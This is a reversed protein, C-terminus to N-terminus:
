EDYEQNYLDRLMYVCYNIRSSNWRDSYYELMAYYSEWSSVMEGPTVCASPRISQSIRALTHSALYLREKVDKEKKITKVAWLTYYYTPYKIRDIIKYFINM